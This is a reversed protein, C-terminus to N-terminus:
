SPKKTSLSKYQNKFYDCYRNVPCGGCKPNRPLCINQGFQVFIDNVDMWYKKPVIRKLEEETEEPKKTHVWGLRNPIRHVHVDVAIHSRSGHGYTMVINATKRGVGKFNMLSDFDCPVKGGNGDIEKAIQRIRRAKTRYFNVPRIIDELRRLSMGAIQKPTKAVAFLKKATPYTVTDRTRLSMICSVLVQFPDHTRHCIEVMAPNEFRKLDKKLIKITKVIMDM